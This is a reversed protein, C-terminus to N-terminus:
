DNDYLTVRVHKKGQLKRAAIRHHGDVVHLGGNRKVVISRSTDGIGARTPRPSRNSLQPDKVHKAVDAAGVDDQTASLSGIPVRVTSSPRGAPIRSSADGRAMKLGHPMDDGANREIARLASKRGDVLLSRIDEVLSALRM